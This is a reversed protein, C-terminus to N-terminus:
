VFRLGDTFAEVGYKSISYPAYLPLSVRGGISATNVIRGRAKKVLPLFTMTVNITGYLNVDLVERYDDLSFWELPGFKGPIGANNIVGWL